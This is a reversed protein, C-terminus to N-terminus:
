GALASTYKACHDNFFQGISVLGFSVLGFSVLGFSVLGDSQQQRAQFRLIVAGFEILLSAMGEGGFVTLGAASTLKTNLCSGSSTTASSLPASRPPGCSATM